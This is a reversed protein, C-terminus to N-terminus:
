LAPERSSILAAELATLFHVTQHAEPGSPLAAALRQAWHARVADVSERGTATLHLHVTRADHGDVVKDVMAKAQLSRLVASLNSPKMRSLHAVASPAIGPSDHIRRIVSIEAQTLQVINDGAPVDLERALGHLVDALDSWTSSHTMPTSM